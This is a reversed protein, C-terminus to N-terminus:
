KVNENIWNAFPGHMQPASIQVICPVDYSHFDVIRKEIDAFKDSKTKMLVVVEESKDVKGEWHFYSTVPPFINGCAVLREELLTLLIKEAEDKSSCTMYILCYDNM